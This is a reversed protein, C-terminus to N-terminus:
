LMHFFTIHLFGIRKLLDHTGHIGETSSPETFIRSLVAVRKCIENEPFGGTSVTLSDRSCHIRKAYVAM